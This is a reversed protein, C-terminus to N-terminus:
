EDDGEEDLWVDLEEDSANAWDPEQPSAEEFEEANELEAVDLAYADDPEYEIGIEGYIERSEVEDL